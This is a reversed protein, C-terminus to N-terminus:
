YISKIKDVFKKVQESNAIVDKKSFWGEYFNSHLASANGFLGRLEEDDTESAIKGVVEFLERHGNHVWGKKQAYAKVIQAAAGWIKESAQQLEGKKMEKEFDKLFKDAVKIYNKKM